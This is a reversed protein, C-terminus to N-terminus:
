VSIVCKEAYLTMMSDHTIFSYNEARAQALLLRDFPDKHGAKEAKATNLKSVEIIHNPSINIPYYGSDECYQVFDVPSLKLNNKPSNNKLMVEWVSVTSFFINNDIDLILEKAKEPLKSDGSIAWLAIHTDLLLNM